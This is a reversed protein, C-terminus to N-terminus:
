QNGGQWDCLLKEMILSLQEKEESSLVDFLHSDDEKAQRHKEERLKEGEPTLRLVTRRRDSPDPTKVILGKDELKSVVESLSGQRIKLMEQMERQTVAGGHRHIMFLIREQTPKEGRRHHLNRGAASIQRYLRNEITEENNNEM